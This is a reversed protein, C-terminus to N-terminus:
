QKRDKILRFRVLLEKACGSAKVLWVSVIKPNWKKKVIEEM